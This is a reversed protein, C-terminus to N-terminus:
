GAGLGGGGKQCGPVRPLHTPYCPIWRALLRRHWGPSGSEHTAGTLSLHDNQVGGVKQEGNLFSRLGNHYACHSCPRRVEIVCAEQAGRGRSMATSACHVDKYILHAYPM